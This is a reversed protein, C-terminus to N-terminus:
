AGGAHEGAWRLEAALEADSPQAGASWAARRAGCRACVLRRAAPGVSAIWRHRLRCLWPLPHPAITLVVPRIV